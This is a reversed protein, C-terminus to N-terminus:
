TCDYHISSNQHVVIDYIVCKFLGQTGGHKDRFMAFDLYLCIVCMGMSLLYLTRFKEWFLVGLYSFGLIGEGWLVTM